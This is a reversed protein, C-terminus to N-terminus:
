DIATYKGGHEKALKKLFRVMATSDSAPVGRYKSGPPWKGDGEFGFTHIRVKRLRNLGRVEELIRPILVQANETRSKMPAGDSLLIITDISPDKFALQLAEDTHTANDARLKRIWQFAGGKSRAPVLKKSFSTVRHNFAIVNFRAEKDLTDIARNLQAKTRRIRQRVEWNSGSGGEEGGPDFMTMSGSIDVVFVVNHSVIEVGFFEPSGPRKRVVGTTGKGEDLNAPDLTEQHTDWFSRWDELSEFDRGTLSILAQRANFAVAGRDFDHRELLEILASVARKSRMQTLHEVANRQVLESRHQLATLLWVEGAKDPLEASAALAAAMAIPNGKKSTLLKEFPEQLVPAGFDVLLEICLEQVEPNPVGAAADLILNVARPGPSGSLYGLLSTLRSADGARIASRIKAEDKKGVDAAAAPAIQLQLAGLFVLALCSFAWLRAM